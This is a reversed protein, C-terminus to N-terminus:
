LQPYSPAIHCPTYNNFQSSTEVTMGSHRNDCAKRGMSQTTHRGGHLHRRPWNITFMFSESCSYHAERERERHPLLLLLRYYIVAMVATATRMYTCLLSDYCCDYHADTCLSHRLSSSRTPSLHPSSSSSLALSAPLIISYKHTSFITHQWAAM